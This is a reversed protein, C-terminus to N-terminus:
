FSTWHTGTDAIFAVTTATALSFATSAGLANISQTGFPFVNCANAGNNRVTIKEGLFGSSIAPLLVSDGGGAVTAVVNYETTLPVALTQGGGSHATIGTTILYQTPNSFLISGGITQRSSATNVSPAAAGLSGDAVIDVYTTTVNDFQASTVPYVPQSGTPILLFTSGGAVTRYLNRKIVNQNTSVPISSLNISGISTATFTSSPGITTEGFNTVFTVAYQYVGGNTLSGTVSGAVLSPAGSPSTITFGSNTVTAM